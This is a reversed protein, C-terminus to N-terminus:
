VAKAKAEVATVLKDLTEKGLVELSVRTLGFVDKSIGCVEYHESKENTQDLNEILYQICGDIGSENAIPALADRHDGNLVFYVHNQLVIATTHCGYGFSSPNYSIHFAKFSLTLNIPKQNTVPCADQSKFGNKTNTISTTM